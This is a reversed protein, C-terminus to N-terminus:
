LKLGVAALAARSTEVCTEANKRFPGSLRPALTLLETSCMRLAALIATRQELTMSEPLANRDIM